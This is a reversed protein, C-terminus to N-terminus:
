IKYCIISWGKESNKIAAFMSQLSEDVAMYYVDTDLLYKRVPNGNWDFVLVINSKRASECAKKDTYLAYIYDETACINLYGIQTDETLKASYFIGSEVTSKLKLDGLRLSKILKIKGDVIEFVDLNSSFRLSYAFKKKEPHMILDGQNALFRTHTNFASAILESIEMDPIDYKTLRVPASTMKGNSLSDLSYKMVNSAQSNLVSFCRKSLNGLCGVFIETPGQGIAGFRAIYDGNKGNFLTYSNGSHFDYVILDGKDCVLGEVVALSEPFIELVTHNKGSNCSMFACTNLLLFILKNLQKM